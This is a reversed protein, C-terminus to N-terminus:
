VFVNFSVFMRNYVDRIGCERERGEGVRGGGVCVEERAEQHYEKMESLESQLRCM